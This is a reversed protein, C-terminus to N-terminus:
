MYVVWHDSKPSPGRLFSNNNVHATSQRGGKIGSKTLVATWCDKAKQKKEHCQCLHRWNQVKNMMKWILINGYKKCMDSGQNFADKDYQNVSILGKLPYRLRLSDMHAQVLLYLSHSRDGDDNINMVTCQVTTYKRLLKLKKSEWASTTSFQWVTVREERCNKLPIPVSLLHSLRKRISSDSRLSLIEM